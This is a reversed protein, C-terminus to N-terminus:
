QYNLVSVLSAWTTLMHLLSPQIVPLTHMRYFFNQKSLGLSKRVQLKV